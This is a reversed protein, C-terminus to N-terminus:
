GPIGGCLLTPMEREGRMATRGPPTTRSGNQRVKPRLDALLEAGESVLAQLERQLGEIQALEALASEPTEGGRRLLEFASTIRVKARELERAVKGLESGRERKGTDRAARLLALARVSLGEAIARRALEERLAADEVTSLEVFHTWSLPEGAPTLRGLYAGFAEVSWREAVLAYRYLTAEDRGLREALRAVARAGYKAEDEKLDRVHAGVRYRTSADERTASALLQQICECKAQFESEAFGPPDSKRRRKPQEENSM